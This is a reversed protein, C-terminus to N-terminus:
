VLPTDSTGHSGLSFHCFTGGLPRTLPPLVIDEKRKPDRLGLRTRQVADALLAQRKCLHLFLYTVKALTLKKRALM